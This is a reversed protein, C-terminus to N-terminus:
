VTMSEPSRLSHTKAILNNCKCNNKGSLKSKKSFGIGKLLNFDIIDQKLKMSNALFNRVLMKKQWM